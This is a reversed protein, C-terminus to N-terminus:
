APMLMRMSMELLIHRCTAMSHIGSLLIAPNHPMQIDLKVLSHQKQLLQVIECEGGGWCPVSPETLGREVWCEINDFKEM